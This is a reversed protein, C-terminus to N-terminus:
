VYWTCEHTGAIRSVVTNGHIRNAGEEEQKNRGECVANAVRAHERHLHHAVWPLSRPVMPWLSIPHDNNNNPEPQKPDREGEKGFKFTGLTRKHMYMVPIHEGVINCYFFGPCTQILIKQCMHCKPDMDKWTAFHWNLKVDSAKSICSLMHLILDCM